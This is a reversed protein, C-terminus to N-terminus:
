LNFFGTLAGNRDLVFRLRLYGDAFSALYDYEHYGNSALDESLTSRDVGANVRQGQPSPM